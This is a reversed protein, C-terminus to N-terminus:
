RLVGHHRRDGAFVPAVTMNTTSDIEVPFPMSGGQAAQQVRAAGIDSVLVAEQSVAQLSLAGLVAGAGLRLVWLGDRQKMAMKAKYANNQVASLACWWAWKM